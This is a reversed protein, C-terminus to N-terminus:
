GGTREGEKAAARRQRARIARPTQSLESEPRKAHRLKGGLSSKKLHNDIHDRAAVAVAVPIHLYISKKYRTQMGRDVAEVFEKLLSM